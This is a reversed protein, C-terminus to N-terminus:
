IVNLYGVVHYTRDVVWQWVAVLSVDDGSATPGSTNGYIDCEINVSACQYAYVGGGGAGAHNGGIWAGQSGPPSVPPSTITLLGLEAYVGGGYREARNNHIHCNYIETSYTTRSYIAGGDLGASNGGTDQLEGPDIYWRMGFDSNQILLRRNGGNPFFWVAGGSGGAVNGPLEHMGGFYSHDKITVDLGVNAIAGGNGAARNNVFDCNRVELLLGRHLIAGGDGTTGFNRVRLNSLVFTGQNALGTSLFRFQYRPLFPAPEVLVTTAPDAPRITLSASNIAELTSLLQIYTAEPQIVIENPTNMYVGTNNQDIADRLSGPGSDAGTTVYFTAPVDRADLAELRPRARRPPRPVSALARRSRAYLSRVTSLM